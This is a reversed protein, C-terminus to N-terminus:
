GEERAVNDLEREWNPSGFPPYQSGPGGAQVDSEPRDIM